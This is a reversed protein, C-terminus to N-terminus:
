QAITVMPELMGPHTRYYAQRKLWDLKGQPGAIIYGGAVSALEEDSLETPQTVVSDMTDNENEDQFFHTTM